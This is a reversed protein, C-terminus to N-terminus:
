RGLRNCEKLELQLRTEEERRASQQAPDLTASGFRREIDAARASTRAKCEETSAATAAAKAPAKTPDAPAKAEDQCQKARRAAAALRTEAGRAARQKAADSGVSQKAKAEREIAVVEDNYTELCPDRPQAVAAGALMALALFVVVKV